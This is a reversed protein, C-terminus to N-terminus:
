ITRRAPYPPYYGSSGAPATPSSRSTSPTIAPKGAYHGRNATGGVPSVAHSLSGPSPYIKTSQQRVPLRGAREAGISGVVEGGARRVQVMLNFHSLPLLNQEECWRLFIRLDSNTHLRTRGRYRGLYATIEARLVLQDSSVVGADSVPFAAMDSRADGAIMLALVRLPM